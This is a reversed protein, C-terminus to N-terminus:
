IDRGYIRYTKYVTGGFDEIIDRMGINDELIWSLEIDEMGYRVVDSQMDNIVRYALAAGLLTEHYKTKVGMLLIRGSRPSKVKLRWLMKLWGFPLLSGNLDHIVENLNPLLVVFAAPADDVYAIRVFKDNILLKLDKALHSFEAETFPLFGWNRSWADNFISFVIDLDEDFKSKRLTRTTIRNATTRIIRKRSASPAVDGHIMYALLDKVKSYGCQEVREGYYPRAHGMMMSPQTEFGNVLLGCEQNISLNFPGQSRTMGKERLWSEVTRLLAQFTEARDEAELLGWFGTADQYRELHLQDVQGSIRGVVKGDRLAIWLCCTAHEFYPNKPSLQMSRELKLPPVWKPDDAYLEWPLNIFADRTKRSDVQVIQLGDEISVTNSAQKIKGPTFKQM